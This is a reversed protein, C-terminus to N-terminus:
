SLSKPAPLSRSAGGLRVVRGPNPIRGAIKLSRSLEGWEGMSWVGGGGVWAHSGPHNLMKAQTSLQLVKKGQTQNTAQAGSAVPNALFRLAASLGAGSLQKRERKGPRPKEGSALISESQRGRARTEKTGAKRSGTQRQTQHATPFTLERQAQRRSFSPKRSNRVATPVQAGLHVSSPLILPHICIYRPGCSVM